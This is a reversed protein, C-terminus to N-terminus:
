PAELFEREATRKEALDRLIIDRIRGRLIYNRLRAYIIIGPLIFPLLTLAVKLITPVPVDPRIIALCTLALIIIVAASVWGALKTREDTNERKAFIANVEKEADSEKELTVEHSKREADRDVLAQRRITAWWGGLLGNVACVLELYSTYESFNCCFWCFM